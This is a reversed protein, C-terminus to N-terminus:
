YPKSDKPKKLQVKLRKTGVQFGNMAKIAVQASDPNDFSVFGFCKSLSTQKDIFVKASIVNGFPLFTSALDTDTFEQPLHYIFLNCGEPGEIQKGAAAAAAASLAVSALPSTSLASASGFQPLGAATSMYASAMPNPDSWLLAATNTLQASGPSTAAAAAAAANSLSPQTMAAIAALNQVTMPTLLGAAAVASTDTASSSQQAGLGTLAQLLQHQLGVAQLQQLLQISAPTIADAGLVPSPQQPPNPLIPTTVSTATQGLPININSALNWLNAQIQQIKKQEKEKQTDAFKVVLPSTCGEMIKNQSLTVKIASIAAHKTAFTVFACGKSQGNQDRLVTCEEIAGHVEFLKRVDNENLKKNLMGVFLKRENRNESDAPKMQIPHYMGNLTKVNHLADQAKLAAHRTYFTVFCCGKSIGTAKDRLVNISHVAGYEEFMERLQSEDMSKPVQGVFMKINDPDPEKEGYTVTADTDLRFCADDDVMAVVNRNASCPNNNNNVLGAASMIGNSGVSVLANSNSGGLSPNSNNNGVNLSNNSSTGNSNNNNNNLLSPNNNNSHIPSNPLSNTASSSKDSM